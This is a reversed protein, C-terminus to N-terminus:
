AVCEPGPDGFTTVFLAITIPIVSVLGWVTVAIADVRLGRTGYGFVIMTLSGLAVLVALVLVATSVLPHWGLALMNVGNACTRSASIRLVAFVAAPSIAGLGILLGRGVGPSWRWLGQRPAASDTM